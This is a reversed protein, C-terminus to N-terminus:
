NFESIIIRKVLQVIKKIEFPKDLFHIVGLNEAKKKVYDKGYASIMIVPLKPWIQEAKKLVTLGSIGPLRYDLIMLAYKQNILKLLASEGSRAVDAPYGEEKLIDSIISSMDRDDEVILIKASARM